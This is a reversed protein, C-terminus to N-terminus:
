VFALSQGEGPNDEEIISLFEEVLMPDFQTGACRKLEEVAKDTGEAKHYPRDNTIADYADAIALIRCEIPIEEEKLGLPYGSGDWREHHKLILDAIGALDPSSLAIRYGKEAHQRILQWEKETPASKKFLVKDSIGVKGLDHVQALLALDTLQRTSLGVKAGVRECLDKLREAHGEAIHDRESLAALLTNVLRSRASAGRYLKDRYMLDDARRFLEELSEGQRFATAVGISVSLLVDPNDQNHELLSARMRELISDGTKQDTRPLIVAFEDGGIRAFVDCQRLTRKLAEACAKLLTDGRDHGMTDNILKLGDVDISIITVPFERSRALRRLEEEFFTRNYIGTLPDHLSLYRLREEFEKRETIDRVVILEAPKDQYVIPGSNFEVPVRSGNKNRLVTEHVSATEQGRKYRWQRQVVRVAEEMLFYDDVSTDTIDAPKYGVIEAFRPNVYKLYADQVIAIGDNAQEVVSRYKEESERMRAQSAELKGLMENIHRAVVTLEDAGDRVDMRKGLSANRAISIVDESMRTLRKLINKELFVFVVISSAVALLVALLAHRLVAARMSMWLHRPKVVEMMLAPSENIDKLLVYGHVENGDLRVCTHQPWGLAAELDSRTPQELSLSAGTRDELLSILSADIKRGVILTGGSANRHLGAVPASAVLMPGHQKLMILGATTKRGLAEIIADSLSIGYRIGEAIPIEQMHELDFAKGYIMRDSSDTLLVISLQLRNLTAADLNSVPQYGDMTGVFRRTDEQSAWEAAIGKLQEEENHLITFAEGTDILAQKEEWRAISGGLMISSLMYYFVTLALTLGALTWMPKRRITM